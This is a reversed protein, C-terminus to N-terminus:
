RTSGKKQSAVNKLCKECLWRGSKSDKTIKTVEKQCNECIRKVIKIEKM